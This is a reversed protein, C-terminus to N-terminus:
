AAIKRWAALKEALSMAAHAPSTSPLPLLRLSPNDITEAVHKGFLKAAAGGNFAVTEIHPHAAFFRTFDNPVASAREISSDLSGKRRSAQLVDWLAIGNANLMAIRTTYNEARPIAFLVEIIHWFANRPHAYYEGADISRVGPLSGLILLRADASAAAAFGRAVPPLEEPRLTM